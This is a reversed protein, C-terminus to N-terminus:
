TNSAMQKDAPFLIQQLPPVCAFSPSIQNQHLDMWRRLHQLRGWSDSPLLCAVGKPWNLILLSGLMLTQPNHSCAPTGPPFLVPLLHFFEVYSLCFHGSSEFWCGQQQSTVISISCWVNQQLIQFFIDSKLWQKATQPRETSRKVRVLRRLDEEGSDGLGWKSPM